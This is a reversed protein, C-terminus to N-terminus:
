QPKDKYFSSKFKEPYYPRLRVVECAPFREKISEEKVRQDYGLAVVDPLIEALIHFLETDEHGLLVKDPIGTLEVNQKRRNEDDDTKIGKIREVTADRAIIVFLEDGLTKAQLLFDVHGPHLHDFTGACVVRRKM